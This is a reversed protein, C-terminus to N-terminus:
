VMGDIMAFSDTPAHKNSFIVEFQICSFEANLDTSGSQETCVLKM